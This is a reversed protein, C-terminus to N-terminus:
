REPDCITTVSIESLSPLFMLYITNSCLFKIRCLLIFNIVSWSIQYDTLLTIGRVTLWKLQFSLWLTDVLLGMALLYTHPLHRSLSLSSCAPTFPLLLLGSCCGSPVLWWVSFSLPSNWKPVTKIIPIVKLIFNTSCERSLILQSLRIICEPKRPKQRWILYAHASM